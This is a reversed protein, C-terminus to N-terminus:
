KGNWHRFFRAFERRVAVSGEHGNENQYSSYNVTIYPFFGAGWEIELALDVGNDKVVNLGTKWLLCCRLYILFLVQAYAAIGSLIHWLAHFEFLFHAIGFQPHSRLALLHQCLINDMVWFTFGFLYMSLSGYLLYRLDSRQKLTLVRPTKYSNKKQVPQTAEFSVADMKKEVMYIGRGLALAVLSGHIAEHFAPYNSLLILYSSTFAASSLLLMYPLWPYKDTPGTEWLIYVFVLLLYVVLISYNSSAYSLRLHFLTEFMSPLEDMMQFHFALTAHFFLSGVGILLYSLTAM